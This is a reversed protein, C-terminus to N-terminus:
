AKEIRQLAIKAIMKVLSAISISSRIIILQRMFKHGAIIRNCQEIYLWAMVDKHITIFTDTYILYDFFMSLFIFIAYRHIQCTRDCTQTCLPPINSSFLSHVIDLNIPEINVTRLSQIDMRYCNIIFFKAKSYQQSGVIRYDPILYRCTMRCVCVCVCASRETNIGM